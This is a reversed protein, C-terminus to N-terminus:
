PQLLIQSRDSVSENLVRMDPEKLRAAVEAASPGGYRDTLAAVPERATAEPAQPM